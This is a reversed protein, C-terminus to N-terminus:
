RFDHDVSILKSGLQALNHEHLGHNIPALNDQSPDFITELVVNHM